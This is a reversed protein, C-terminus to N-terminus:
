SSVPPFLGACFSEGLMSGLTSNLTLGQVLSLCKPSESPTFISDLLGLVSGGDAGEESTVLFTTSLFSLCLPAARGVAPGRSGAADAGGPTKAVGQIASM